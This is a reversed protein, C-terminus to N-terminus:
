SCIRDVALTHSLTARTISAFNALYLLLSQGALKKYICRPNTFEPHGPAPHLEPPTFTQAGSLADLFDRRTQLRLPMM